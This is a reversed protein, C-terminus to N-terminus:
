AEKSVVGLIYVLTTQYNLGLYLVKCFFESLYYFCLLEDYFNMESPKEEISKIRVFKGPSLDKYHEFFHVIKDITEKPVYTGNKLMKLPFTKVEGDLCDLCDSSHPIELIDELFQGPKGKNITVPLDYEINVISLCKIFIENITKKQNKIPAVRPRTRTIIPAVRPRTRTIIATIISM